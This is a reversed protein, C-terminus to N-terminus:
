AIEEDLLFDGSALESPADDGTYTATLLFNFRTPSTGPRTTLQALSNAGTAAIKVNVTSTTGSPTVGIDGPAEAESVTIGGGGYDPYVRFSFGSYDSVDIDQEAGDSDLTKIDLSFSL